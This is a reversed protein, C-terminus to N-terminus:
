VYKGVFLSFVFSPFIAAFKEMSRPISEISTNKSVNTLENHAFFHNCDTLLSTAVWLIAAIGSRDFVTGPHTSWLEEWDIAFLKAIHVSFEGVFSKLIYFAALCSSLTVAWFSCPGLGPVSGWVQFSYAVFGCIFPHVVLPQSATVQTSLFKLFDDTTITSRWWALWSNYSKGHGNDEGKKM